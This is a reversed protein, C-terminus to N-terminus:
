REPSAARLRIARLKASRSRPNSEREAEDAIVPKRTLGDALQRDVMVRMARKVPRDELSHFAIVAVRAGPGLWPRAAGLGGPGASGALREAERTISELLRELAGLEDNVAIRLAQFTRTAPDIPKGRPRPGGKRPRPTAARVLDALQATTTIPASERAEVLKRAIRRAHREEGFDRLIQTLEEEDASAVLEAATMGSSTDFRMDLPGDGKFSLGRGADDVQGSAFGLDALVLDAVIGREALARPARDFSGHLTEVRPGVPGLSQVEDIAAALNSADLDNLVVLGDPGLREAVLRAHGGRGATCDLYTEGPKPDLLDLAQDPLVPQHAHDPLPTTWPPHPAPAAARYGEAM